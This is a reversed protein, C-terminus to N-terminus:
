AGFKEGVRLGEIQDQEVDVHGLHVAIFDTAAQAASFDTAGRGHNKDGAVVGGGFTDFGVLRAAGIEDDFRYRGIFHAVFDAANQLLVTRQLVQGRARLGGAVYGKGGHGGHTLEADDHVEHAAAGVAGVRARDTFGQQGGQRRQAERAGHM